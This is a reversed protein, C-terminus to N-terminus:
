PLRAIKLSAINQAMSKGTAGFTIKSFEAGMQSATVRYILGPDGKILGTAGGKGYCNFGGDRFVTFDGDGAESAVGYNLRNFGSMTDWDENVDRRLRKM